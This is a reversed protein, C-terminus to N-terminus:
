AYGSKDPGGFGDNDRNFYAILSLITFIAAMFGFGNAGCILAIVLLVLSFKM